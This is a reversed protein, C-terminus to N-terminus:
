LQIERMYYLMTNYFLQNSVLDAPIKEPFPPLMCFNFSTVDTCFVNRISLGNNVHVEVDSSECTLTDLTIDSLVRIDMKSCRFIECLSTMLNAKLEVNCNNSSSIFVKAAMKAVVFTCRECKEIYITTAPICTDITFMEDKKSIFEIIGRKSM